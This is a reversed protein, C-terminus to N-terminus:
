YKIAMRGDVGGARMREFVDIIEELSCANDARTARFLHCSRNSPGTGETARLTVLAQFPGPKPVDLDHVSVVPGFEEVVAARLSPPTPM